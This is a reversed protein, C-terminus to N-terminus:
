VPRREDELMRELAAFDCKGRGNVPMHEVACWRRPLMYDPLARRLRAACEAAKPPAKEWEVVAALGRVEGGARIPLVAAARVEEWALIAAEVEGPEIRYGKYKIQRDRRGLYWLLGGRIVGQDGTRYLKEGNFTGFGGGEGGIYGGGVSPGAIAIEGPRGDPLPAGQEDLILLRSAGDAVRGVPLVGERGQVEVATVACAAETPGYANLIRLGDFRKALTKVTRPALTEGCFFVTELGPLLDRCFAADCLCLRAFSPTCVLRKAGSRGLAAYLAPLDKQEAPELARVTGGAAFAPWLDAVSLDFSFRAQNVSVGAGCVAVAPLSLMWRVFNELASLPIRVGKPAGTSGSTFMWYADRAPDAAFREPQLLEQGSFLPEARVAGLAAAVPHSGCCLADAAGSLRRIKLLREPPQQPDVPLWPRGVMLCALFCVPMGAEKEGLVLVPGTGARLRAALARADRWLRGYTLTQTRNQYAPREPSLRAHRAIAELLM